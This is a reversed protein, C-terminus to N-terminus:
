KQDLLNLIYLAGAGLCWATLIHLSCPTFAGCIRLKPLHSIAEPETAKGGLVWQIPSRTPRLNLAPALEFASGPSKFNGGEGEILFMLKRFVNNCLINLNPTTSRLFNYKCQQM